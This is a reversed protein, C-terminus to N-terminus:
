TALLAKEVAKVIDEIDSMRGIADRGCALRGKDPGIFKYGFKKLRAINEQTAPHTYMGDNMAPAVLVKAKTAMVVCTLLDDCNGAAMKALTNATAPAIVVLDATDALSIHEVDWIDPSEFMARSVKHGSIMQLTLPTIFYEAERTMVVRVQLGKKVLASVLAAAKFAAISGTVGVIVVKGKKM